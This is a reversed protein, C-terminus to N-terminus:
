STETASSVPKFRAKNSVGFVPKRALLGMNDRNGVQKEMYSNEVATVASLLLEVGHEYNNGKLELVALLCIVNCLPQLVPCDSIICLYSLEFSPGYYPQM